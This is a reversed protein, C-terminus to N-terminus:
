RQKVHTLSGSLRVHWSGSLVVTKVRWKRHNLM